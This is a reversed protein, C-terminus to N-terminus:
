SLQKKLGGNSKPMVANELLRLYRTTKTEGTREAERMIVKENKFLSPLCINLVLVLVEEEVSYSLCKLIEELECHSAKELFVVSRTGGDCGWRSWRSRDGSLTGGGM